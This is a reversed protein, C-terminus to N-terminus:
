GDAIEIQLILTDKNTHVKINGQRGAALLDRAVLADFRRQRGDAVRQLLPGADDQGRMQATRFALGIRFHAQLRHGLTQFFQQAPGYLHRRITDTGFHFGHFRRGTFDQQQLIQAKVRLLFLVIRLKRFLQSRKAVDVHVVREAGRM